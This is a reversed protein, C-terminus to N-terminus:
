IQYEVHKVDADAWLKELNYFQRTEEKFIHVVVDFYDLLIWESSNMGEKHSPEDGTENYVQKQVARSIADVQTDSTGHCIVFYDTVASNLQRLDVTCIEKGKVEQIGRVVSDVLKSTDAKATSSM